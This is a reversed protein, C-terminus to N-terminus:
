NKTSSERRTGKGSKGDRARARGGSCRLRQGQVDGGTISMEKEGWLRECLDLDSWGTVWHYQAYYQAHYWLLGETRVCGSDVREILGPAAMGHQWAVSQGWGRRGHRRRGEYEVNNRPEEENTNTSYKVM